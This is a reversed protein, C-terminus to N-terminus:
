PSCRFYEGVQISSPAVVADERFIPIDANVVTTYEKNDKAPLTLTNGNLKLVKYFSHDTLKKVDTTNGQARKTQAM